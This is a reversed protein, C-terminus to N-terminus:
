NRTLKKDFTFLNSGINKSLAKLFCDVFSLNSDEYFNIAALFSRRDQVEIYSTSVISKLKEVVVNKAFKYYKELTFQLEFVVIQPVVIEIKKDKAKLFIKKTQEKQSPVDNLIFRLIANTDVIVKKTM